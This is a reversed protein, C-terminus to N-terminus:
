LDMDLLFKDHGPTQHLFSFNNSDDFWQLAEERSIKSPKNSIYSHYSSFKWNVIDKVFGHTVPNFHIYKILQIFYDTTEVKKRKFRPNFLSGKRNFRKNYAQTYGNFLNSFQQSIFEAAQEDTIVGQLTRFGELPKVRIFLHFHNPMLCYAFTDVNPAIYKAYKELFYYFNEEQRFLNDNGNAHNYIHYYKDPLLLETRQSM